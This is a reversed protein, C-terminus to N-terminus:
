SSPCPQIQRKPHSSSIIYGRACRQQERGQAKAQKRKNLYHSHCLRKENLGSTVGSLYSHMILGFRLVGLCTISTTLCRTLQPAHRVAM